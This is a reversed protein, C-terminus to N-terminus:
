LPTLDSKGEGFFRGFSDGKNVESEDFEDFRSWFGDFCRGRGCRLRLRSGLRFGRRRRWFGFWDLRRGWGFDLGGWRGFRFRFGIRGNKPIFTLGLRGTLPFEFTLALNGFFSDFLFSALLEGGLFGRGGFLFDFVGFTAGIGGASGGGFANAALREDDAVGFGFVGGGCFEGAM